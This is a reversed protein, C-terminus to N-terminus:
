HAPFVVQHGQVLGLIQIRRFDAAHGEETDRSGRFNLGGVGGGWVDEPGFRELLPAVTDARQSARGNHHAVRQIFHSAGSVQGGDLGGGALHQPLLLDTNLLALARGEVGIAQQIHTHVHGQLIGGRGGRGVGVTDGIAIQEHQSGSGVTGLFDAAGLDGAADESRGHAVVGLHVQLGVLLEVGEALLTAIGAQRRVGGRGSPGLGSRSGLQLGNGVLHQQAGALGLREAHAHEIGVAEGHGLANIRLRELPLREDRGGREDLGGELSGEVRRALQDGFQGRGAASALELGSKLTGVALRDRAKDLAAHQRPQRQHLVELGEGQGVDGGVRHLRGRGERIRWQRPVGGTEAEFHAAFIRGAAGILGENFGDVVLEELAALDEEAERVHLVVRDLGLDQAFAVLALHRFHADDILAIGDDQFAIGM